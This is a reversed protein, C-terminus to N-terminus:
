KDINQCESFYFGFKTNPEIHLQEGKEVYSFLSNEYVNEAASKVRNGDKNEVAGEVAYYGTKVGKVFKNGVTLAVTKAAKAPDIEFKPSYSGVFTEKIEYSNGNLDTYKLPEFTFTADQKLRKPDTVTYMKGELTYGTKLTIEGLKCNKMVRVKVPKNPTETSIVSISEVSMLEAFAPLTFFVLIFVLLFKKM